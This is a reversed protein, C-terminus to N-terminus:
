KRLLEEAGSALIETSAGSSPSVAELKRRYAITKPALSVARAYFQAASSLDRAEAFYDGLAAWRAPDKKNALARAKLDRKRLEFAEFRRYLAAAEEARATKGQRRYIRSLELYAAGYGPQVDIARQFTQQARSIDGSALYALGLRVIDRADTPSLEVTRRAAEVARKLREPSERMDMCLAALSRHYVPNKPEARVALDYEEVAKDRYGGAEAIVGLQHHVHGALAPKLQLAKRLCEVRKDYNDMEAYADALRVYDEGANTLRVVQQMTKLYDQKRKVSQYVTATGYLGQRRWAPDRDRSLALYGALASRYDHAAADGRARWYRAQAPSGARAWLAAATRAWRPDDGKLEAAMSYATASHRWDKRREYNRALEVWAYFADPNFDVTKQWEALAADEQGKLRALATGLLFHLQGVAPARQVADRLDAAAAQYRGGELLNRGAVAYGAPETPAIRIMQRALKIATDRDGALTFATMLRDLDDKRAPDPKEILEPHHELFYRLIQAAAQDNGGEAYYSSLDVAAAVSDPALKAAKELEARATPFQALRLACRGIPGATATDPVGLIRAARLRDLALNFYGAQEDILGLRLYAEGDAPDAALRALYHSRLQSATANAPPPAPRRASLLARSLPLAVLAAALLGLLLRTRRSLVPRRSSRSANQAV